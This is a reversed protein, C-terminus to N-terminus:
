PWDDPEADPWELRDDGPAYPGSTYPEDTDLEGRHWAQREGELAAQDTAPVQAKSAWRRLLAAFEGTTEDTVQGHVAFFLVLPGALPDSADCRPCLIVEATGRVATGRNNYWGHPVRASLLGEGGCRPCPSLEKTQALMINPNDPRAPQSTM